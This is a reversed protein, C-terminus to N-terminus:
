SALREQDKFAAFVHARESASLVGGFPTVQRLERAWPAPDTLLPLLAEIPRELAVRWEGLLQSAGAAHEIMRSLNQRALALVREPEAVLHRAIASHLVISRREERTLPPHYEITAELGVSKALRRVTAVSPSKRGAEYAAITPQSTGGARALAAQTAGVKRRLALIVNMM